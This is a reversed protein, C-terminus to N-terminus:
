PEHDLMLIPAQIDVWTALPEPCSDQDEEIYLAINRPESKSTHYLSRSVIREGDWYRGRGGRRVGRAAKRPHCRFALNQNPGKGYDFTTLHCLRHMQSRSRGCIFCYPMCRNGIPKKKAPTSLGILYVWTANLKTRM